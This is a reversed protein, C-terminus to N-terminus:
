TKRLRDCTLQIKEYVEPPNFEGADALELDKYHNCYTNIITLKLQQAEQSVPRHAMALGLTIIATELKM